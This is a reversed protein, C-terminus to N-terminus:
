PSITWVLCLEEFLKYQLLLNMPGQKTFAARVYANQIDFEQMQIHNKFDIGGNGWWKYVAEKASWCLTFLQYPHNSAYKAETLNVTALLDQEEKNLFKNKVKETKPSYLEIDIGARHRQSVIAAAYSGGHSISFHYQEHPLYPKRTSAIKIESYPFLPFLHQLLYRGALHQLRKYPHTVGQPNPVQALFFTEPEEIKWVGLRTHANIEQQYFIPM